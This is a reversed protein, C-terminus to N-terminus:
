RKWLDRPIEKVRDGFLRRDGVTKIERAHIRRAIPGVPPTEFLQFGVKAILNIYRRVLPTPSRPSVAHVSTPGNIFCAFVNAGYGVAQVVEVDSPLIM